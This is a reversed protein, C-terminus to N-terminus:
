EFLNQYEIIWEPIDRKKWNFMHSKEFFYYQRYAEISDEINNTEIKYTDPMAQKPPTFGIDQINPKNEELIQLYEKECKHIKGYRYTYEKCLEKTLEVLWNYNSLSERTWIASPHNKHSLKMLKLEKGSPHLHHTSCLLQVSELIMKVVHKDLHMQACTKPDLHLFFINM